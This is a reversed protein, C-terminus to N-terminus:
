ILGPICKLSTRIRMRLSPTCLCTTWQINSAQLFRGPASNHLVIIFVLATQTRRQKPVKVSRGWRRSAGEHKLIICRRRNRFCAHCLCSLSILWISRNAQGTKVVLSIPVQMPQELRPSSSLVIGPPKLHGSSSIWAFQDTLRSQCRSQRTQHLIPILSPCSCEYTYM